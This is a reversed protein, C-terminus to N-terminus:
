KQEQGRNNDAAGNDAVHGDNDELSDVEGTVSM